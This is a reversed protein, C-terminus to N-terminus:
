PGKSIEAGYWRRIVFEERQQSSRSGPMNAPHRRLMIESVREQLDSIVVGGTKHGCELRSEIVEGRDLVILVHGKWAILDLPALRRVIAKADMGAIRIEKGYSILGVTNRPTFGNTAEYLLGSCDLGALQWRRLDEDSLIAGTAPAYMTLLEPIGARWNGGWVYPTGVARRLRAIIEERAPLSKPREAPREHVIRVFRSDVFYGRSTPYPYDDTSIRYFSLGGEHLEQEITFPTGPLAVFEVERIQGCSDTKLVTGHKGGFVTRFHSTNLVPTPALAVAYRRADAQGPGVAFTVLMTFALSLQLMVSM